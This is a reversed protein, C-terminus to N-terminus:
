QNDNEKNNPNNLEHLRERIESTTKLPDKEKMKPQKFVSLTQNLINKFSDDVINNKSNIYIMKIQDKTEKDEIKSLLNINHDSISILYMDDVIEIISIYRNAAVPTTALVNIIESSGSVKRSKNKLYMFVLYIGVLTVIFGIIAKFFMWGNSVEARNEINRIDQLIAPENINNTNELQANFFNTATNEENVTNNITNTNTIETNNTDQTFAINFIILSILFLKKIM